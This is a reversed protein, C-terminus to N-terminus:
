LAGIIADVKAEIADLRAETETRLTEVDANDAKLDAATEVEAFIANVAADTYTNGGSTALDTLTTATIVLATLNSTTGLAALSAANGQGVDLKVWLQTASLYGMVQGVKQLNGSNTSTITSDDSAYVEDGVDTLAFGSGTLLYLGETDVVGNIDGASGASNDYFGQSVGAFFSGAETACPALNGAANIKCLANNYIIDSAVVPHSMFRGEKKQLNANATLAAM